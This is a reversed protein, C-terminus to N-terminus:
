RRGRTPIPEVTQAHQMRELLNILKYAVYTSTMYNGKRIDDMIGTISEEVIEGTKDKNLKRLLKTSPTDDYEGESGYLRDQKWRYIFFMVMHVWDVLKNDKRMAEIEPIAEKANGTVLNKLLSLSGTESLFKFNDEIDKVTFFEGLMARELFQLARRLSGGSNNVLLFLGEKVFEEPLNDWYGERKLVDRMTYAIDKEVLNKFYYQQCRTAISQPVKNGNVDTMSLLIFHVYPSPKELFKHFANKAGSSLQDVEEIIFVHKKGHLPYTHITQQILEIVDDKSSSSGDLMHTSGKAFKENFIDDYSPDTNLPNGEEDVECQIAAAALFAASTKGVGTPGQFLMATPWNGTAARKKMEKVIGEQGRLENWTKPRHVLSYQTISAKSM